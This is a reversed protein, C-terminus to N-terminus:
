ERRKAGGEEQQVRGLPSNNSGAANQYTPMGGPIPGAGGGGRLPKAIRGHNYANVQSSQAPIM